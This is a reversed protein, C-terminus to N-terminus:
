ARALLWYLARLAGTAHEGWHVEFHLRWTWIADRAAEPTGRELVRLGRVVDARVDELDDRLSGLVPHGAVEYPDFIELYADREGFDWPLPRPRVDPPADSDSPEVEPLALAAALLLALARSLERLQAPRDLAPPHACVRDFARARCAFADAVRLADGSSLM